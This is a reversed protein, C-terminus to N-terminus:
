DPPKRISELMVHDDKLSGGLRAHELLAKDWDWGCTHVRYAVGLTGDRHTGGHCHVYIPMNDKTFLALYRKLDAPPLGTKKDFPMEM